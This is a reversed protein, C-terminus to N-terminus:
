TNNIKRNISEAVHKALLMITEYPNVEVSTPFLSADSVYISEAGFVKGESDCVADKSSLGMRAGGQPHASVLPTRSFDLAKSTILAELNDKDENLLPMKSSGPILAKECGAEFFIRSSVQLAKILKEKTDEQLTYIIKTRGKNDISIRNHAEAKDHLLILISMMKAYDKMVEQHLLGFGPINKATIGPYYFSTELYFDDSESFHDSYMTKPFGKYNSIEEKYVANVNLAPHLTIYRGVNRKPITLNNLSRLLICPTNLVGAALVIYKASFSYEGEKLNNPRTGKPADSIICNVENEAITRVDANAILEVGREMVRPIQLELTGQKAGTTCGLNCYGQQKCGKVNIKLRKVEIGLAKAGKEFLQNNQTDWSRPLEHVNMDDEMEDLSSDVYEKTLFGMGYDSRWKKLVSEPPRFSVGTYVASSGGVTNAAAVGINLNSSYTAGRNFYMATMDRENQNFFTRDRYPGSELIAVRLNSNNRTLYDAFTGGGVGSGVIIVDYDYSTNESPQGM